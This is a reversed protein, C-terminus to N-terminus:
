LNKYNGDLKRIRKRILEECEHSYFEFKDLHLDFIGKFIHLNFACFEPLIDRWDGVKINEEKQEYEMSSM